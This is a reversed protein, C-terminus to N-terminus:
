LHKKLVEHIQDVKEPTLYLAHPNQKMKAVADELEKASMGASSTTDRNDMYGALFMGVQEREHSSFGHRDLESLSKDLERQTVRKDPFFFGM